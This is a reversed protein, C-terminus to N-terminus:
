DVEDRVEVVPIKLDDPIVFYRRPPAEGGAEKAKQYMARLLDNRFEEEVNKDEIKVLLDENGHWAWMDVVFKRLPSGKPTHSYVMAINTPSPPEKLVLLVSNRMRVICLNQLRPSTLHEALLWLRILTSYASQGDVVGDPLMNRTEMYDSNNLWYLFLSFITPPVNPLEFHERKPDAKLLKNFYPSHFMLLQTYVVFSRKM